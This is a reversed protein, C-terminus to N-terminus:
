KLCNKQKNKEIISSLMCIILIMLFYLITKLHISNLLIINIIITIIWLKISSNIGTIYGKKNSKRANKYAYIFIFIFNIISGM